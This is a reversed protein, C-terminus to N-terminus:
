VVWLNVYDITVWRLRVRYFPHMKQIPVLNAGIAGVHSWSNKFRQLWEMGVAMLSEAMQSWFVVFKKLNCKQSFLIIIIIITPLIHRFDQLWTALLELQSIIQNVKSSLNSDNELNNYMIIITIAKFDYHKHRSSSGVIFLNQWQIMIRFHTILLHNSVLM